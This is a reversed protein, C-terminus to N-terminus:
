EEEDLEIEVRAQTKALDIENDTIMEQNMIEMDILAEPLSERAEDIINDFQGTLQDVKHQLAENGAEMQDITEDIDNINM